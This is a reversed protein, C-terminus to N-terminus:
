VGYEISQVIRVPVFLLCLGLLPWAFALGLGLRVM